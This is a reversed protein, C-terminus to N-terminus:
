DLARRLADRARSARARTGRGGRGPRTRRRDGLRARYRGGRRPRPGPSALRRLLQGRSHGGAVAGPERGPHWRVAAASVGRPAPGAGRGRVGAGAPRPWGTRRVGRDRGRRGRARERVRRLPRRLGGDGSDARGPLRPGGRNHRLGRRRCPAHCAGPRLAGGRHAAPPPGARWGTAAVARLRAQGHLLAARVRADLAAARECDGGQRVFWALPEFTQELVLDLVAAGGPSHSLYDEAPQGPEVRPGNNAYIRLECRGARWLRAVDLLELYMDPLDPNAAVDLAGLTRQRAADDEGFVSDLLGGVTLRACGVPLTVHFADRLEM